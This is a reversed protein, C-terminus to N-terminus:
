KSFRSVLFNYLWAFIAGAILGDVLGWALGVLSGAPSICYGRYVVSLVTKTGSAGELIIVWWTILFLGIGWILAATLAFAKVNLKMVM